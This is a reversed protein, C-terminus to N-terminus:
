EDIYIVQEDQPAFLAYNLYGEHFPFQGWGKVSEHRVSTQLDFHTIASAALEELERWIEDYRERRLDPDEAVEAGYRANDLMEDLWDFSVGSLNCCAGHNSSHHLADCFSHPNFTGSLGICGIVGREAYEPDLVRAVYTTWEFTEIETEFLGTQEMSEAVLEVMQVRDDNDANVELTVELPAEIGYEDFVEQALEEAQEPDYENYPRLEEELAQADTTGAGQALEPIMTWAPRAWGALVNEVIQERPVLHNFAQRLRQDDWPEVRIPPQFYEYGGTEVGAVEFDESADFDDLTARTLGTTVDIEDNQLAGSRTADDPIIEMEIRDIVPGDPFDDDGEFWDLSDVGMQEVWYNDNKEYEVYQEDEMEDFVYPGTGIPDNGQRPDLDNPPLEALEKPYVYMPPLERAGEADPLQGYIDVTYEDIAEYYLTSDFYQAANDSLKLRDYSAIVDEATMEEGNHFEVGERLNYRIRMGFVGDDVADEADEFLLTRVEDGEEPVADEPHRIIEQEEIPLAGEEVAEVTRMYPEYDTREIDQTEAVEFDEALWPYLNGESDTITLSEFVVSQVLTSTTDTSYPGDFSDANAGIGVRLTGGEVIEGPDVDEEGIGTDDEEAPEDGELCGALGVVGAAGVSQLVRRRNIRPSSIETDQVM